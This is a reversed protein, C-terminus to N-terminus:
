LFWNLALFILDCKLFGRIVEEEQVSLRDHQLSQLIERACKKENKRFKSVVRPM